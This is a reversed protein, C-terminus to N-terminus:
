KYLRSEKYFAAFDVKTDSAASLMWTAPNEGDSLPPLESRLSTAANSLYSILNACEEGMDGFFVTEGGKRLLLLKDFVSFLAYSPQHITCIVARGTTSINQVARIVVLAARSDLGSTPEDLFLVSPNAAMEVAMTLRKRQEFSLGGMELSGVM